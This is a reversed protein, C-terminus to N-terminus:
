IPNRVSTNNSVPAEHPIKPKNRRPRRTANKLHICQLLLPLPILLSAPSPHKKKIPSLLRCLSEINIAHFQTQFIVDDEGLIASTMTLDSDNKEDRCVLTTERLNRQGASLGCHPHHSSEWKLDTMLSGSNWLRTWSLDFSSQLRDTLLTCVNCAHVNKNPVLIAKEMHVALKLFLWVMNEKM